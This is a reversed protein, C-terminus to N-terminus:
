PGMSLPPPHHRVGLLACSLGVDPTVLGGPIDGTLDDPGLIRRFPLPKVWAQSLGPSM